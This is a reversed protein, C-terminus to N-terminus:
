PQAWARLEGAAFPGIRSKLMRGDGSVLVSYPLVGAPDGLQVGADEPGPRDLLIPYGIRLRAVFARVAAPDDLAIGVVQVGNAPQEDAFRQLAPMEAACPACWSAWVNLLLPRGAFDSPLSVKRGDLAILRLEPVRGGIRAVAADVGAPATPTLLATYLRRGLQSRLLPVPGTVLVSAVLGLTGAALAVLLIRATPTM